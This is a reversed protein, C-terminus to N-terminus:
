SVPGDEGLKSGRTPNESEFGVLRRGADLIQRVPGKGGLQKSREISYVLMPIKRRFKGETWREPNVLDSKSKEILADVERATMADHIRNIQGRVCLGNSLLLFDESPRGEFSKFGRTVEDEFRLCMVQDFSRWIVVAKGGNMHFQLVTLFSTGEIDKVFTAYGLRWDEVKPPAEPEDDNVIDMHHKVFGVKTPPLHDDVESRRPHITAFRSRKMCAECVGREREESFLPIGCEACEGPKHPRLLRSGRPIAAVRRDPDEQCAPCIRITWDPDDPLPKHCVRCLEAM